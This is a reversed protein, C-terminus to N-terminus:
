RLTELWDLLVSVVEDKEPENFIEHALGPWVRAEVCGAPAAKAFRASGEPSVCEDAGAWMLLTPVAWRPALSEVVRGEDRIFRALRGTIRDHVRPDRRYAQVVAPDTCIKDPNLGNNVALNPALRSAVSIMREQKRSLGADLAPSSLCIADVPRMWAAPKPSLAEAAFRAVVLGGLSHGLLVLPGPAAAYISDLVVALDALLSDPRAIRGRAGGSQGHGRHDYGTVRWGAETIASALAAYRGVHEGLGHVVLVQGCPLNEPEQHRLRLLLGDETKLTIQLNPEFM